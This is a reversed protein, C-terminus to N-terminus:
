KARGLCSDDGRCWDCEYDSMLSVDAVWNGLSTKHFCDRCLIAGKSSEIDRKKNLFDILRLVQKRESTTLKEYGCVFLDNKNSM